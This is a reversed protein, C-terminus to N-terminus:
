APQPCPPLGLPGPTPTPLTDDTWVGLYLYQGSQLSVAPGTRAFCAVPQTSSGWGMAQTGTWAGNTYESLYYVGTADGPPLWVNFGPMANLALASEARISVYIFPM